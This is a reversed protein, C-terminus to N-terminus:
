PPPLFFFLFLFWPWSFGHNATETAAASGPVLALAALAWPGLFVATVHAQHVGLAVMSGGVTMLNDFECPVDALPVLLGELIARRGVVLWALLPSISFGRSRFSL